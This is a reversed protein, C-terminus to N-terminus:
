VSPGRPTSYGMYEEKAFVLSDHRFRRLVADCWNLLTLVGVAALFLIGNAWALLYGGRVFITKQDNARIMGTLVGVGEEKTRWATVTGDSHIIQSVGSSAARVSSRRLEISRFVAMDAHHWREKDPWEEPDMVPVLLFEAGSAVSRRPWDTFLADYCICIGARGAPLVFTNWETAPNGDRFFPLPVSKAQRGVIGAPGILMGVNDYSCKSGEPAVVHVGVCIHADYQGALEILRRIIRHKAHANDAITHEPLVVIRPREPQQLALHVLEPYMKYKIGEGQVIAVPIDAGGPLGDPRALMTLAVLVVTLVGLPMWARLRRGLLAHAIAANVAVLALSVGYVGFVSAIQAVVPNHSQSYGLALFPFRLRALGECRLVEQGVFAFPVAWLMASPGFRNILLRAVRFGFGMWISLVTIVGLAMLPHLRYVWDLGVRYFGLALLTGYLWAAAPSVRPLVMLWPVLALWALWHWNLPWYCTAMLGGSVLAALASTVWSVPPHRFCGADLRVRARVEQPPAAISM